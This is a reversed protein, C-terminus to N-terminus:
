KKEGEKKLRVFVARNVKSEEFYGQVSDWHNYGTAASVNKIKRYNALMITKPIWGDVENITKGVSEKLNSYVELYGAGLTKAMGSKSVRLSQAFWSILSKYCNRILFASQNVNRATVVFQKKPDKIDKAEVVACLYAVRGMMINMRTLFTRASERTIGEEAKVMDRLDRSRRIVRNPNPPAIENNNEDYQATSDFRAKVLKYIDFLENTYKEIPLNVDEFTGFNDVIMEDIEDKIYEPVKWIYLTARQFLGTETISKDLEDPVFTTALVSRQSHCSVVPGEKLKKTIVQSSGGISNMLTNLYTTISNKHQTKSFVGSNSFEDWRALGHGDLSGKVFVWSEDGALIGALEDDERAIIQKQYGILAADTYEVVEFNDYQELREEPGIASHERYSEFANIKAWLGESVPMVFNMLESKGTGSTQIWIFHVRPDILSAKIPIRIIDKCMQGVLVLGCMAAPIENYHSVNTAEKVWGELFKPLRTDGLIREERGEHEEYPQYQLDGDDYEAEEWEENM